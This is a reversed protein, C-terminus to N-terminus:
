GICQKLVRLFNGGMYAKIEPMKFGVERMAKALDVINLINEWGDVVLPGGAGADTGLGIHEIGFRDRL